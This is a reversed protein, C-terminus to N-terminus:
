LVSKNSQLAPNYKTARNRPKSAIKRMHETFALDGMKKRRAKVSRKGM